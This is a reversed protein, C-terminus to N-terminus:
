KKEEKKVEKADAAPAAGDAEAAAKEAKKEDAVSVIKTVDATAAKDEMAKIEEETLAPVAKVVLDEAAPTSVKIGAPLILDKVKIVDEYSNLGALSVEIQSVLDKPLCKVIVTSVTTVLTGGSAKVVPAEGIFRLTVPATMEKNMDIRRFDVHIVSDSVADFQVDQILVKGSDKGDVTLDILSSEGAKKYLKLFDSGPLSLSQAEKEAGYVVAPIFGEGRAKEGKMTRQAATIAYNMSVM